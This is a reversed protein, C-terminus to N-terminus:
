PAETASASLLGDIADKLKDRSTMGSFSQKVDGDKYLFLAPISRIGLSKALDAETDTNVKVVAIKDRFEDAISDLVPTLM